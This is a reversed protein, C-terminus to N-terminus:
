RRVALVQSSADGLSRRVQLNLEAVSAENEENVLKTTAMQGPHASGSEGGVELMAYRGRNKMERMKAWEHEGEAVQGTACVYTANLIEQLDLTRRSASELWEILQVRLKHIIQFLTTLPVHM